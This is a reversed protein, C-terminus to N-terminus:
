AENVSPRVAPYLSRVYAHDSHEPLAVYSKSKEFTLQCFNVSLRWAGALHLHMLLDLIQIFNRCGGLTGRFILGPFLSAVAPGVLPM